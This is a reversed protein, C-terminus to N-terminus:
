FICEKQKLTNNKRVSICNGVMITDDKHTKMADNAADYILVVALHSIKM